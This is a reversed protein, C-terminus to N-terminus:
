CINQPKKQSIKREALKYRNHLNPRNQYFIENLDEERFGDLWILGFTAPITRPYDWKLITDSM